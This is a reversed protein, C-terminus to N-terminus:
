QGLGGDENAYYLCSSDHVNATALFRLGPVCHRDHKATCRIISHSPLRRIIRKECGYVKLM